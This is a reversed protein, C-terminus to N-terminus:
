VWRENIDCCYARVWMSLLAHACGSHRKPKDEKKEKEKLTAEFNKNTKQKKKQQLILLNEAPIWRVLSKNYTQFGGRRIM